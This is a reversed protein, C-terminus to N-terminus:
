ILIKFVQVKDLLHRRKEVIFKVPEKLKEEYTKDGLSSVMKPWRGRASDRPPRAAKRPARLLPLGPPLTLAVEWRSCWLARSEVVAARPWKMFLPRRGERPHRPLHPLKQDGQQLQQAQVWLLLDTKKIETRKQVIWGIHIM